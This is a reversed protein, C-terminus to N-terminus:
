RWDDLLCAGPRHYGVGNPREMAVGQLDARYGRSLLTRYAEHCATNVGIEVRHAGRAAFRTECVDLLHELTEDCHTGPRVAAFKVYCVDSGGESGAGTHCVAFAELQVGGWLLLHGRSETGR